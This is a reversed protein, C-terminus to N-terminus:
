ICPDVPYKGEAVYNVKVILQELSLVSNKETAYRKYCNPKFWYTHTHTHYETYININQRIVIRRNELLYDMFIM